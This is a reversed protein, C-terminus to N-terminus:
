YNEFIVLWISGFGHRFGSGSGDRDIGASIGGGLRTFPRLLIDFVPVIDVVVEAYNRQELLFTQSRRGREGLRVRM